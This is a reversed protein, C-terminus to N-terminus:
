YWSRRGSPLPMRDGIFHTVLSVTLYYVVVVTAIAPLAYLLITFVRAMLEAQHADFALIQSTASLSLGDM